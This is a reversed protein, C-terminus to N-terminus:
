YEAGQEVYGLGINDIQVPVDLDANRLRLRFLRAKIGVSQLQGAKFDARTMDFTVTRNVTNSFDTYIDVYLTGSNQVTGAIYIRSLLKWFFPKGLWIDPTEFYFNITTGNDSQGWTALTSGAPPASAFTISTNAVFSQVQLASTTLGGSLTIWQNNYVLNTSAVNITNSSISTIAASQYGSDLQYVNGSYDGAWISTFFNADTVETYFNAANDNEWFKESSYEYVLTLDRTTANTSSMGWFIQNKSSNVGGTIYPMSTPNYKNADNQDFRNLIAAASPVLSVFSGICMAPGQESIFILGKAPVEKISWHSFTGLNGVLRRYIFPNSVNGTYELLFVSHRKFVFLVGNWVKLGTIIDGDNPEFFDQYFGQAGGFTSWINPNNAESFWVRNPNNADGAMAMFTGFMTLFKCVPTAVQSTFYGQLNTYEAVLTNETGAVVSKIHFSTTSNAMPNAALDINATPIKYYTAGGATTMFWKTALANIDFGFATSIADMAISSIDISATGGGAAVTVTTEISSRYGGSILTTVAMIKYVGNAINSGAFAGQAASFTPRVGQNITYGASQDWVQQTNTGYDASFMLNKVSSFSFLNNQGGALGTTLQTWAGKLPTANRAHYYIAGGGVGIIRQTSSAGQRYDFIGQVITTGSISYYITFNSVTTWTPSGVQYNTTTQVLSGSNLGEMYVSGGNSGNIAFFFVLWYKTAGSLAASTGTFNFTYLIPTSSPSINYNTVSSGVITGPVGANDTLIQCYAITAFDCALYTNISTVTVGAGTTIQQAFAGQTNVTVAFNKNTSNNLQSAYVSNVLSNGQITKGNRKRIAGTAFFDVNKLRPSQMIEATNGDVLMPAMRTNLGGNLNRLVEFKENQTAEFAM